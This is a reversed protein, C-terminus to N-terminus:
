LTYDLILGHQIPNLAAYPGSAPASSSPESEQSNEPQPRSSASNSSRSTPRYTNIVRSKVTKVMNMVGSFLTGMSDDNYWTKTYFDLLIHSKETFIAFFGNYSRRNQRLVPPYKIPLYM